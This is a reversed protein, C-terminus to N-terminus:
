SASGWRRNSFEAVEDVIGPFGRTGFLQHERRAVRRPDEERKETAERPIAM